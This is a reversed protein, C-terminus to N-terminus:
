EVEGDNPFEMWIDYLQEPTYDGVYSLTSTLTKGDEEVVVKITDGSISIDKVKGNVGYDTKANKYWSNNIKDKLYDAKLQHKSPKVVKKKFTQEMAEEVTQGDAIFVPTGKITKWEGGEGSGGYQKKFKESM